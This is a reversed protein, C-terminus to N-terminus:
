NKVGVNAFKYKLLVLSVWPPLTTLSMSVPVNKKLQHEYKEEKKMYMHLQMCTQIHTPAFIHPSQVNETTCMHKPSLPQHQTDEKIARGRLCPRKSYGCSVLQPQQSVLSCNNHMCVLSMIWQAM